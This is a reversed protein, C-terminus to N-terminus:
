QVETFLQAQKGKAKKQRHECGFVKRVEIVSMREVTLGKKIWKAIEKANDKAYQPEDVACAVVCGCTDRAIYCIAQDRETQTM